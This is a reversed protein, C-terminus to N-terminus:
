CSKSSSKKCEESKSWELNNSISSVMILLPKKSCHSRLKSDSKIYYLIITLYLKKILGGRNSIVESLFGYGIIIGKVAFRIFSIMFALYEKLM